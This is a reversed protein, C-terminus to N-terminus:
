LLVSPLPVGSKTTSHHRLIASLYIWFTPNKVAKSCLIRDGSWCCDADNPHKNSTCNRAGSSRSFWSRCKWLTRLSEASALFRFDQMALLSWALFWRPSSHLLPVVNLLCCCLHTQLNPSNKRHKSCGFFSSKERAHFQVRILINDLVSFDFWEDSYILM